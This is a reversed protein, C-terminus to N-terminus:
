VIRQMASWIWQHKVLHFAELSLRVREFYVGDLLIAGLLAKEIDHSYLKSPAEQSAFADSMAAESRSPTPYASTTRAHQSGKPSLPYCFIRAPNLSLIM